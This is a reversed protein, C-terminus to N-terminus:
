KKVGRMNINRKKTLKIKEFGNEKFWQKVDLPYFSWNYEPNYADWWGHLTSGYDRVHQKCFEIKEEETLTPWILRGKEYFKQTKRHYVMIFLTGGKIVQSALRRFGVSPDPMHHLVGWCLVFDFRPPPTLTNIDRLYTNPNIKKCAAVAEPSIDISEVEAGLEQLAHTYRGNGCGADLCEIGKFFSSNLKTLKLLEKVRDQNYETLPSPINSWQYDFEPKM